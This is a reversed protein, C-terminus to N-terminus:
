IVMKLKDSFGESLVQLESDFYFLLQHYFLILVFQFVIIFLHFLVEFTITLLSLLCFSPYALTRAFSFFFSLQSLQLIMFFLIFHFISILIFSFHLFLILFHWYCIILISQYYHSVIHLFQSLQYIVDIIQDAMFFIRLPFLLPTFHLFETLYIM